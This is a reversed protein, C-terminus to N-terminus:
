YDAGKAFKGSKISRCMMPYYDPNECCFEALARFQDVWIEPVWLLIDKEGKNRRRARYNNQKANTAKQVKSQNINEM